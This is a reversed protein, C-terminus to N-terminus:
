TFTHIPGSLVPASSTHSCRTAPLRTFGAKRERVETQYFHQYMETVYEPVEEAKGLNRKDHPAIATRIGAETELGNQLGHRHSPGSDSSVSLRGRKSAVSARETSSTRKKKELNPVTPKESLFDDGLIDGRNKTKGARRRLPREPANNRRGKEAAVLKTEMESPVPMTSPKSKLEELVKDNLAVLRSSRRPPAAKASGNNNAAATGSSKKPPRRNSM